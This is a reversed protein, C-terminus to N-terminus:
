GKVIQMTWEAVYSVKERSALIVFNCSKSVLLVDWFYLLKCATTKFVTGVSKSITTYMEKAIIM